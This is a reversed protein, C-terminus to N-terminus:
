KWLASYENILYSTVPAELTEPDIGIRNPVAM